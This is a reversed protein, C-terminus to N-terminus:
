SKLEEELEDHAIEGGCNALTMAWKLAARWGKKYKEQTDFSFDEADERMPLEIYWKEFQEM